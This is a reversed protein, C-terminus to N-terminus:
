KGRKPAPTYKPTRTFHQPGRGATDRAHQAASQANAADVEAQYRAAAQNRAAQADYTQKHGPLGPGPHALSPVGLPKYVYPIEKDSPFPVSASNTPEQNTDAM